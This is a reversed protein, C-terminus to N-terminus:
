VLRKVGYQATFGEFAGTRHQWVRGNLDSTVGLYLTGRPQSAMLYVTGPNRVPLDEIPPRKVVTMSAFALVWPAVLV